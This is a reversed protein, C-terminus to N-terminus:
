ENLDRLFVLSDLANLQLVLLVLMLQRQQLTVPKRALAFDEIGPLATQEIVQDIFVQRANFLFHLM